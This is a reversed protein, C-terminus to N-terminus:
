LGQLSGLVYRACGVRNWEALKTVSEREWGGNDNNRSFINMIIPDVM